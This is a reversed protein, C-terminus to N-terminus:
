VRNMREVFRRLHALAQSRIQCIRAESLGMVAGIEALRMGENFYLALVKRSQDPLEHIKHAVLELMESREIRTQALEANEDAICDHMMEGGEPGSDDLYVVSVPRVLFRLREYAKSDMGLEGRLEEDTPERGMQQELKASTRALLRQKLRVSRPVMDMARLEDLIAGRIRISAYTQFTYGRSPDFREVASLLGTMGASEMEQVDAHPPLKERMRAVIIKVLSAYKELVVGKDTWESDGSAGFDPFPKGVDHADVTDPSSSIGKQTQM